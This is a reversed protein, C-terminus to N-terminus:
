ATNFFYKHTNKGIYVIPRENAIRIFAPIRRSASLLGHASPLTAARAAASRM